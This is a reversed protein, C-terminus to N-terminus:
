MIIKQVVKVAIKYMLNLVTKHLRNLTLKIVMVQQRQTQVESRISVTVIIAALSLKKM